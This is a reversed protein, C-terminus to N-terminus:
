FSQHQCSPHCRCSSHRAVFLTILRMTVRAVKGGGGNGKSDEGDGEEDSHGDRKGGKGKSEEDSSCIMATVMVRVATEMATKTETALARTARAM